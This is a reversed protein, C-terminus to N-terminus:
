RGFACLARLAASEAIWTRMLVMRLTTSADTAHDSDLGDARVCSAPPLSPLAASIFQPCGGGAFFAAESMQDDPQREIATYGAQM